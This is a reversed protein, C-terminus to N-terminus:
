EESTVNPLWVNYKTLEDDRCNFTSYIQTPYILMSSAVLNGGWIPQGMYGYLYNCYAKIDITKYEKYDKSFSYTFFYRWKMPTDFYSFSKCEGMRLLGKEVYFLPIKLGKILYVDARPPITLIQQDVETISTFKSFGGNLNIGDM